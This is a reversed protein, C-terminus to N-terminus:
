GGVRLSERATYLPNGRKDPQGSRRVFQSYADLIKQTEGKSIGAEAALGQASRFEYNPDLLASLVRRAPEDTVESRWGATPRSARIRDRVQDLNENDALSRVVNVFRVDGSGKVFSDPVRRELEDLLKTGSLSPSIEGAKM